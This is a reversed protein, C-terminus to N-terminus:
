VIPKIIADIISELTLKGVLQIGELASSKMRDLNKASQYKQLAVGIEEHNTISDQLFSFFRELEAMLSQPQVGRFSIKTFSTSRIDTFVLLTPFEGYKIGFSNAFQYVHSTKPTLSDDEKEPQEDDTLILFAISPGTLGDIADAFDEKYKGYLLSTENQFPTTLMISYVPYPATKKLEVWWNILERRNSSSIPRHHERFGKFSM